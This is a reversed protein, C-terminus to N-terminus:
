LGCDIEKRLWGLERNEPQIWQLGLAEYIEEETNCVVAGGQRALGEPARTLGEYPNWHLGRANARECLWINHEKSGTRCLLRTGWTAPTAFWLDLQCKPLDIIVQKGEADGGSIFRPSVELQSVRRANDRVYARLFEWCHNTRGIVEGLLDRRETSKPICVIDVDNCVPRRRRISGAVRIRECYPELWEVLKRAYREARELPMSTM